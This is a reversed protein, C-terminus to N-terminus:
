ETQRCSSYTPEDIFVLIRLAVWWPPVGRSANRVTEGDLALKITFFFDRM